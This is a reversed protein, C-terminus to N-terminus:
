GNEMSKIGVYVKAVTIDGQDLMTAIKAIAAIGATMNIRNILHICCCRRKCVASGQNTRESIATLM